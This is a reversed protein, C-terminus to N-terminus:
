KTLILKGARTIRLRYTDAQHHILLESARGFLAESDIEPRESEPVRSPPTEPPSPRDRDTM